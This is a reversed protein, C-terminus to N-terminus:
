YSVIGNGKDEPAFSVDGSLAVELGTISQHLAVLAEAEEELIQSPLRDKLQRTLRLKFGDLFITLKDGIVMIIIDCKVFSYFTSVAEITKKDLVLYIDQGLTTFCVFDGLGTIDSLGYKKVLLGEYQKISPEGFTRLQIFAHSKAKSLDTTILLGDRKKGERLYSYQRGNWSLLASSFQLSGYNFPSSINLMGLSSILSDNEKEEIRDIILGNIKGEEELLKMFESQYLYDFKNRRLRFTAFFLFVSLLIVGLLTVFRYINSSVSFDFLFSTMDFYPVGAFVSVTGFPSSLGYYGKGLAAFLVYIL